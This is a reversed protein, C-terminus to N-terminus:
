VKPPPLYAIGVYLLTQDDHSPPPGPQYAGKEELYAKFKTLTEEEEHNLHGLHGYPYGIGHEGGPGGSSASSKVRHVDTTDTTMGTM